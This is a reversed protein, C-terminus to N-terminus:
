DKLSLQIRKRAIDVGIVKAEVQQQLKVVELPDSVYRNAMQSVHILGSVKIGIDVFAGFKTINTIIGNVIMGERVDNIDSIGPTFHFTKAKGRPDLGPKALEDMIDKLTPLGVIKTTYNRLPIQKRLNPQQILDHISCRLDKAMQEVIHYSEPHVATNDLPHKGDRIRLFGAAQEYAKAGMRPVKKLASRSAFLGNEARYNVINQALKDGLGSVYTLL